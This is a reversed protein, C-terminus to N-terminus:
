YLIHWRAILLSTFIVIMILRYESHPNSRLTFHHPAKKILSYEYKTILIVLVIDIFFYFPNKIFVGFLGIGFPIWIATLYNYRRFIDYPWIDPEIRTKSSQHAM